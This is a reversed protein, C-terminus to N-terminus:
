GMVSSDVPPLLSYREQLVLFAYVSLYPLHLHEIDSQNM